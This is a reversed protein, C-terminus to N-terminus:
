DVKKEAEEPAWAKACLEKLEKLQMFKTARQRFEDLNSAAEQM